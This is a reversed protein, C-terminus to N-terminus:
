IDICILATSFSNFLTYVTHFQSFMNTYKLATLFVLVKLSLSFSLFLDRILIKHKLISGSSQPFSLSSQDRATLATYIFFVVFLCCVCFNISM